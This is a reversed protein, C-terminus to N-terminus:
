SITSSRSMSELKDVGSIGVQKKESWDPWAQGLRRTKGLQNGRAIFLIVRDKGNYIKVEIFNIKEWTVDYVHEKVVVFDWAIFCKSRCVLFWTENGFVHDYGFCCLSFYYCLYVSLQTDKMASVVRGLDSSHQVIHGVSRSLHRGLMTTMVSYSSFSLWCSLFTRWHCLCRRGESFGETLHSWM